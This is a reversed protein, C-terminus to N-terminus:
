TPTSHVHLIFYLNVLLLGPQVLEFYFQVYDWTRKELYFCTGMSEESARSSGCATSDYWLTCADVHSSSALSCQKPRSIRDFRILGYLYLGIFMRLVQLHESLLIYGVTTWTSRVKIGDRVLILYSMDHTLSTHSKSM